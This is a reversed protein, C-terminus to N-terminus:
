LRSFKLLDYAYWILVTTYYIYIYTYEKVFNSKAVSTEGITV